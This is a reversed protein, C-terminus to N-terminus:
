RVSSGLAVGLALDIKHKSAAIVASIYEAVNGIFPLVILRIFMKNLHLNMAVDDITSVLYEACIVILVIV